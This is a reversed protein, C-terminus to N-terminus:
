RILQDLRPAFAGSTAAKMGDQHLQLTEGNNNKAMEYDLVDTVTLREMDAEPPLPVVNTLRALTELFDVFTLQVMKTRNKIEDSVMMRARYFPMKSERLGVKLVYGNDGILRTDSLFVKWEELGFSPKGAVPDLLSYKLYAM